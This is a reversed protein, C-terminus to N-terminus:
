PAEGVILLQHALRPGVVPLRLTLRDLGRLVGAPCWRHVHRIRMHGSIWPSEFYEVRMRSLGAGAFIAALEDARYAFFHGDGDASFQRHEHKAPDGLEGYSPLPNRAYAWNPTTMVVRGRPKLWGALREVLRRPHVLHEVLQNAFVLDFTGGPAVDLANGCVFRIDGREHRAAAYDLFPQRIDMACVRHGREALLLALTAQACGVDLVDLAGRGGALETYIQLQNHYQNWVQPAISRDWIEQMDHRYLALVDPPWGADLVPPKVDAM